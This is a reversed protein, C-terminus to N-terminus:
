HSIASYRSFVPLFERVHNMSDMSGGRVHSSSPQTPQLPQGVSCMTSREMAGSRCRGQGAVVDDRSSAVDTCMVSSSSTVCRSRLMNSLSIRVVRSCPYHTGLMHQCFAGDPLHEEGVRTTLLHMDIGTFV